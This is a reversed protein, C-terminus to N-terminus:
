NTCKTQQNGFIFTAFPTHPFKQPVQVTLVGSLVLSCDSDAVSAIRLLQNKIKEM